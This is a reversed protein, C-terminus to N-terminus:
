ARASVHMRALCMEIPVALRCRLRDFLLGETDTLDDDM